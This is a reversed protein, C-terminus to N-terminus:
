GSSVPRHAMEDGDHVYLSNDKEVWDFEASLGANEWLKRAEVLDAFFLEKTAPTAFCYQIKGNPWLRDDSDATGPNITVYRKKLATSSNTINTGIAQIDNEYEFLDGDLGAYSPQSYVISSEWARSGALVRTTIFLSLVVILTVLHAMTFISNKLESSTPGIQLNYILNM